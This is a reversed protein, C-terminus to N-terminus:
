LDLVVTQCSEAFSLWIIRKMGSITKMEVQQLNLYNETNTYKPSAQNISFKKHTM